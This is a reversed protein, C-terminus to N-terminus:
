HRQSSTDANETLCDGAVARSPLFFLICLGLPPILSMLFMIRPYGKGVIAKWFGFFYFPIVPFFLMFQVHAVWDPMQDFNVFCGPLLVVAVWIGVAWSLLSRGPFPTDQYFSAPDSQLKKNM